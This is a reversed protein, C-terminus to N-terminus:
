DSAGSWLRLPAWSSRLCSESGRRLPRRTASVEDDISKARTNPRAPCPLAIAGSRMRRTPVVHSTTRLCRKPATHSRSCPQARPAAPPSPKSHPRLRPSRFRQASTPQSCETLSHRSWRPLGRAMPASMSTPSRSAENPDPRTAPSQRSVGADAVGRDRSGGRRPHHERRGRRRTRRAIGGARSCAVWPRSLRLGYNRRLRPRAGCERPRSDCCRNGQAHDRTARRTRGNCWRRRTRARIRQEPGASGRQAGARRDARSIAAGVARGDQVEGGFTEIGAARMLRGNGAV